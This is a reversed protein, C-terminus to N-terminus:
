HRKKESQAPSIDFCILFLLALSTLGIFTFYLYAFKKDRVFSDKSEKIFDNVYERYIIRPALYGGNAKNYLFVEAPGDSTGSQFMIKIKQGEVNRIQDFSVVNYGNLNIDAFSITKEQLLASNKDAESFISLSINQNKENELYIKKHESILIGVPNPRDAVFSFASKGGSVSLDKSDGESAIPTNGTIDFHAYRCFIAAFM